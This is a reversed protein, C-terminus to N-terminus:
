AISVISDSTPVGRRRRGHAGAPPPNKTAAKQPKIQSLNGKAGLTFTPKPNAKATHRRAARQRPNEAGFAAAKRLQSSGAGPTTRPIAPFGWGSAAMIKLLSRSNPSVIGAPRRSNLSSHVAM